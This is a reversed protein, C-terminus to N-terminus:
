QAMLKPGRFPDPAGGVRITPSTSWGVNVRPRHGQRLACHFDEGLVQITLKEISVGADLELPMQGRSHISVHLGPEDMM